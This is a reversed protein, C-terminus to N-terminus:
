KVSLTTKISISGLSEYTEPEYSMIKLKVSAGDAIDSALKVSRLYEGPKILGSEGLINDNEDLIRMKLFASNSEPNTFYVVAEGNEVAVDGCLSVKFTMGKTYKEEYGLGEPVDPVGKTANLDFEPPIFEVKPARNAVVISSIAVAILMAACLLIAVILYPPLKSKKRYLSKTRKRRKSM